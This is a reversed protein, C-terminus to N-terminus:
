WRRRVSACAPAYRNTNRRDQMAQPDGGDRIAEPDRARQELAARERALREVAELPILRVGGPGRRAPLRGHDVLWRIMQTSYGTMHAVEGPLLEHGANGDM